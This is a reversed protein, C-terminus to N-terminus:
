APAVSQFFMGIKAPEVPGPAAPRGQTQTIPIGGPAVPLRLRSSMAIRAPEAPVPEAALAPAVAALEVLEAAGAALEVQEAAGREGPLGLGVLALFGQLPGFDLNQLAAPQLLCRVAFGAVRREPQVAWALEFYAPGLPDLGASDAGETVVQPGAQVAEVM